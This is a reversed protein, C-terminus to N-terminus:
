RGHRPCDPLEISEVTKGAIDITEVTTQNMSSINISGKVVINHYAGAEDIGEVAYEFTVAEIDKNANQQIAFEIGKIKMDRVLKPVIDHPNKLGEFFPLKHLEDMYEDRYEAEDHKNSAAASAMLNLVAPVDEENLDFVIKQTGDSNLILEFKEKYSGVLYDALAEEQATMEHGKHDYKSEYFEQDWHNKYDAQYYLDNQTDVFIIMDKSGYVQATKQMGDLIMSISGSSQGAEKDFKVEAYFEGVATGNDTISVTGEFTGNSCEGHNKMASKFAEYGEYQNGAAAVTAALLAVAAVMVTILILNRKKM